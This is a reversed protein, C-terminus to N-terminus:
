GLNGSASPASSMAGGGARALLSVGRRKKQGATADAVPSAAQVPAAGERKPPAEMGARQAQAHAEQAKKVNAAHEGAPNFDRKAYPNYDNGFSIMPQGGSLNGM